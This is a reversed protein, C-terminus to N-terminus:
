WEKTKRKRPPKEPIEEAQPEEPEVASPPKLALAAALREKNRVRFERYADEGIRDERELVGVNVRISVAARTVNRVFCAFSLREQSLIFEATTRMDAALSRADAASGGGAYKTATNAAISARLEQPVQGFDQHAFTIGARQKRAETLFKAISRDFYEGAEDVYMFVEREPKGSADRELIARLILTIAIRGLYSSNMEGLFGKDTDILIIAGSNLATFFDIANNQALFLRSLTANGIIAHLRYRIQEKTQNYQPRMFDTRFFEQAIPELSAIAPQYVLPNETFKILDHLTANRGMTQPMALMAMTLYNFLAGQRVTLDAGLLSDFLYNFIELTHNRVREKEIPGYQAFRAADAAFVNLAPSDKPDIIILERQHALALMSLKGILQRQSDIVVISPGTCDALDKLILNELLTTKGHGTGATIVAHEWRVSRPVSIPVPTNLFDYLPTGGLYAKIIDNGKYDEPLVRRAAEYNRTLTERVRPFHAKAPSHLFESVVASVVVAHDSIFTHLPVALLSDGDDADTLEGFCAMMAEGLTQQVAKVQSEDIAGIKSLQDRYRAGEISNCIPPPPPIDGRMDEADYIELAAEIAAEFVVDPVNTRIHRAVGKGFTIKDLPPRERARVAEYLQQAESRAREEQRAPSHEYNQYLKWALWFAGGVAVLILIYFGAFIAIVLIAVPVVGWWAEDKKQKM